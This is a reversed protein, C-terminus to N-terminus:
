LMGPDKNSIEGTNIPQARSIDEISEVSVKIRVISDSPSSLVEVHSDCIEVNGQMQRRLKKVGRERAIEIAQEESFRAIKIKQEHQSRKDYGWSGWPTALVSRQKEVKYLGYKKPESRKLCIEKWPTVFFLSSQSRGTYVKNELKLRCEGYGEYWIRAKVTGRARVPYPELSPPPANEDMAYPAPPFVIGSILIDGKGVVQGAQVNAQGELVLIDDIVGDKAAVIHCPGTIEENPLIKEVVKIHARVGRVECQVYSLQPLDRLMSEEVDNCIFDWKAAGRYIGHRAASILIKKSDVEKNGSLQIFWVFSSMLYLTLIFIAAGSIFGLRRKIIARYFPWGQQSIIELAFDNEEVISQLAKFGSTRVRLQLDEGRWKIDWIYIGRSLAMNIIREPSRGKLRLTIVGGLQDFFRNEM